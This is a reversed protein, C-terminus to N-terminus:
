SLPDPNTVQAPEFFEGNTRKQIKLFKEALQLLM